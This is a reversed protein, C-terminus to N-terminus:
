KFVFKYTVTITPEGEASCYVVSYTGPKLGIVTGEASTPSTGDNGTIVNGAKDRVEMAWDLKNQGTVSLTGRGNVKLTHSNVDAPSAPVKGHCHSSGDSNAVVTPDPTTDTYSWTGSLPKPKAKGSAALAPTLGAGGLALASVTAVVRRRNM